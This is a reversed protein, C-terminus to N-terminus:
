ERTQKVHRDLSSPSKIELIVRNDDTIGDLSTRMWPKSESPYRLASSRSETKRRTTSVHLEPEMRTGRAMADHSADSFEKKLTGMKYHFLERPTDWPSLYMLPAIESGGLTIGNDGNAGDFGLM